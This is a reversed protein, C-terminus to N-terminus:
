FEYQGPKRPPFNIPGTPGSSRGSGSGTNRQTRPNNFGGLPNGVGPANATNGSLLTNSGAATPNANAGLRRAALFNTAKTGQNFTSTCM